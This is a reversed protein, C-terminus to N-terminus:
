AGQRRCTGALQQEPEMAADDPDQLPGDSTAVQQGHQAPEILVIALGQEGTQGIRCPADEQRQQGPRALRHPGVHAMFVKRHRLPRRHLAGPLQDVAGPILGPQEPVEIHHVVLPAQQAVDRELRQQDGIGPLPHPLQHVPLRHADIGPRILLQSGAQQDIAVEGDQRHFILPTQHPDEM